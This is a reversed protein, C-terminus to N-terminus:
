RHENNPHIVLCNSNEPNKKWHLTVSIYLVQIFYLKTVSMMQHGINKFIKTLCDTRFNVCESSVSADM